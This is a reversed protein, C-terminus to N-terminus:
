HLGMSAKNFDFGNAFSNTIGHIGGNFHDETQNNDVWMHLVNFKDISVDTPVSSWKLKGHGYIDSTGNVNINGDKTMNVLIDESQTFNTVLMHHRDTGNSAIMTMDISLSDTIGNISQFNWNGGLLWTYNNGTLTNITGETTFTPRATTEEGTISDAFSTLAFSSTGTVLLVTLIVFLIISNNVKNM